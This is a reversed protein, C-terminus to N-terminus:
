LFMVEFKTGKCKACGNYDPNKEKKGCKNCKFVLNTKM